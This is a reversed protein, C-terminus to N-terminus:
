SHNVIKKEVIVDVIVDVDVLVNLTECVKATMKTM